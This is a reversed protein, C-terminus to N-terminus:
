SKNPSMRSAACIMAGMAAMIPKMPKPITRRAVAHTITHFVGFTSSLGRSTMRSVCSPFGSASLLMDPFPCAAFVTTAISLESVQITHALSSQKFDLPSNSVPGERSVVTSTLVRCCRRVSM